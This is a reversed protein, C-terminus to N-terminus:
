RDAYEDAGPFMEPTGRLGLERVAADNLAAVMVARNDATTNAVAAAYVDACARELELGALTAGETTELGTPVEYATASTVPEAGAAAIQGTLLDRRGRHADYAARITLYEAPAASQSTRAGIVGLVYVAAHENALVDQLIDIETMAPSRRQHARGAAARGRAPRGLRVDLRAASGARREGSGPRGRRPSRQLTQESVRVNELAVAYSAPRQPATGEFQAEIASLHAAHARALPGLTKRLRPLLRAAEVTVTAGIIDTAVRDVLTTDPDTAASETASPSEGASPTADDEPPRLDDTDCAALALLRWPAM